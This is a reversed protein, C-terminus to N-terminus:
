QKKKNENTEKKSDIREEGDMKKDEETTNKIVTTKEVLNITTQEVQVKPKGDQITSFEREQNNNSDIEM